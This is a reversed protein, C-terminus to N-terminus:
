LVYLQVVQEELVENFAKDSVLKLIWFGNKPMGFIEFEFAGLQFKQDSSFYPPKELFTGVIFEGFPTQTTTRIEFNLNM